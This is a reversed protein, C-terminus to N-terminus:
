GGEVTSCDVSDTRVDWKSPLGDIVHMNGSSGQTLCSSPTDVTPAGSVRCQTQITSKCAQLNSTQGLDGLGGQVLFIMTLAAMMLVSASIILWLIQSLGKRM